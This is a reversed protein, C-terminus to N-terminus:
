HIELSIIDIHTLGLFVVTVAWLALLPRHASANYCIFVLVPVYLIFSCNVIERSRLAAPELRVPAM